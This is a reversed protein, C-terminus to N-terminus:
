VQVVKRATSSQTTSLAKAAQVMTGWNSSFVPKGLVEQLQALISLTPLQACAIFMAECDPTMTKIALDYVEKATIRGLTDVDGAYFSDFSLVEIGGALLFQKLQENVAELYPTILGIRKVQAEQLIAVMSHATTVVPKGSVRSMERALEADGEPGDIFGAATCGYAVVDVDTNAFGAGLALAQAKYPGITEPTLLGKGRPIKFVTQKSGPTMWGLAEREFTTNNIPVMLGVHIARTM